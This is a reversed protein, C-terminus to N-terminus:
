LNVVMPVSKRYDIDLESDLRLFDWDNKDQESTMLM